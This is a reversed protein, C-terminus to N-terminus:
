EPPIGGSLLFLREDQLNHPSRPTRPQNNRHTMNSVLTPKFLDLTIESLDGTVLLM